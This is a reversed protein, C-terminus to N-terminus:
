TAAAIAEEIQKYDDIDDDVYQDVDGPGFTEYEKEFDVNSFGTFLTFLNPTFILKIQMLSQEMLFDFSGFM